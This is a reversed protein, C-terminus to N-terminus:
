KISVFEGPKLDRPLKYQGYRIRILRNVMKDQSEFIRRVVRNRGERLVINYWTNQGSGPRAEIRVVFVSGDELQIGSRIQILENDTLKGQIRALYERELQQSPHMLANALEGDTTFLLLGSTNFDLRGVNIWRGEKLIPLQDFVTRRGGPDNRTCIEGEPKHYLLLQHTAKPPQILKGDVTLQHTWDARDGIQVMKDDCFIRGCKIWREIERRSGIGAQALLKQIKETKMM